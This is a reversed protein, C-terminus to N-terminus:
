EPAAVSFARSDFVAGAFEADGEYRVELTGASLAEVNLPLTFARAPGEAYVAANALQALPASKQGTATFLAVIRGYASTAGLPAIRTELTLRGDPDRAFRVDEIEARAERPAARVLVPVSVGLGIDLELGGGARRFPTRVADTEILLHSRREGDPLMQGPRLRVIVDVSAGPDLRFRAPRVTLYPAASLQARVEPSAPEYGRATAQLDIWSAKGAILRASPNTVRFMAEPAAPTLVHRLPAIVMEAGAQASWLVGILVAFIVRM